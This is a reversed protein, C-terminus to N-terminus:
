SLNEKVIVEIRIKEQAPIVELMNQSAKMIRVASRVVHGLDQEIVVYFIDDLLAQRSIATVDHAVVKITSDSKGLVKVLGANGAGVSYVGKVNQHAALAHGVMREVNDANDWAEITPLIEHHPFQEAMIQDFGLRRQVHDQALMSGSVVLIQGAEQGLVSGLLLGATRGAALNNIGVFQDKESSPLDSIIAVVSIEQQKLRKIADRLQPTEPAMIAVGSVGRQGLEELQSVLANPDNPPVSVLSVSTRDALMRVGVEQVVSSLKRLFSTSGDPVVFVFESDKQRALSAAAMDRVYGIDNIADTVRKITKARVGPRKNLVRDVTALSVGANKAIDHVTPRSM